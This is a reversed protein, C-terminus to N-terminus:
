CFLHHREESEYHCQEKETSQRQARLCFIKLETHLISQSQESADAILWTLAFSWHILM